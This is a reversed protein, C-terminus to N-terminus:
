EGGQPVYDAIKRAAAALAEDVSQVTVKGASEARWGDARVEALFAAREQATTFAVTLEPRVPESPMHLIRATYVTTM